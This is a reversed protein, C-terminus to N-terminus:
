FIQFVRKLFDFLLSCLFFYMYYILFHIFSNFLMKCPIYVFPWSARSFACYMIPLYDLFISFASFSKVAPLFNADFDSQNSCCNATNKHKSQCYLHRETIRPLASFEFKAKPRKKNVKNNNNKVTTICYKGFTLFFM